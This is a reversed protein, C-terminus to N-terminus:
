VADPELALSSSVVDVSELRFEIGELAVSVGALVDYFTFASLVDVPDIAEPVRRRLPSRDDTVTDVVGRGGEVLERVLERSEASAPQRGAKSAINM